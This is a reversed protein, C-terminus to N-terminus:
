THAHLACWLLLHGTVEVVNFAKLAPNLRTNTISTTKAAHEGPLVHVKWAKTGIQLRKNGNNDWVTQM